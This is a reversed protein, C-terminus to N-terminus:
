AGDERGRAGGLAGREPGLSGGDGGCDTRGVTAVLPRRHADSDPAGSWVARWAGVEGPDSGGQRGEGRGEEREGQERQQLGLPRRATGGVQWARGQGLVKARATDEPVSGWTGM